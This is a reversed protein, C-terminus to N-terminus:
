FVDLMTSTVRLESCFLNRSPQSGRVKIGGPHDKSLQSKRRLMLGSIRLAKPNRRKKQFMRNGLRDM